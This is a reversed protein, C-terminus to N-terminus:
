YDDYWCSVTNPSECTCVPGGLVDPDDYDPELTTGIDVWVEDECSLLRGDDCTTGYTAEDWTCPEGAHAHGAGGDGTPGCGALAVAIAIWARM